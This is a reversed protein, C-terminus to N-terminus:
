TLKLRLARIIEAPLAEAANHGILHRADELGLAFLDSQQRQQVGARGIGGICAHAEAHLEDPTEEDIERLPEKVRELPRGRLAPAEELPLPPQKALLEEARVRILLVAFDVFPDIERREGVVLLLKPFSM